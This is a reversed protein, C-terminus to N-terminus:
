LGQSNLPLYKWNAHSESFFVSNIFSLSPYNGPMHNKHKFVSNIGVSLIPLKVSVTSIEPSSSLTWSGIQSPLCLWLIFKLYNEKHKPCFSCSNTEVMYLLCTLFNSDGFLAHNLFPRYICRYSNM